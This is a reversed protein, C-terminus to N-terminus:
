LRGQEKEPTPLQDGRELMTEVASLVTAPQLHALNGGPARVIAHTARDLPYPGFREPPTPGFCAVLPTGVAAAIHMPGSDNAVVVGATQIVGVMQPLSTQGTLNCFRPHSALSPPAPMSKQGTWVVPPGDGSEILLRTLEAFGPWNKAAGRSHPALVIPRLACLNEHPPKLAAARLRIPGGLRAQLGIVPLFQLLVEVAHSMRGAAPLPAKRTCAWGAFERADSRGIKVSANALLTMLGSRALGQFDLVCDYEEARLQRVFGRLGLVWGARPFVIVRDVASCGEVVPAFVERAVWTIHCGPVQERLSQAVMLGHIIDGLSSPKIILFKKM